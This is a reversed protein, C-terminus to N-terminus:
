DWWWQGPALHKLDVKKHLGQLKGAEDSLLNQSDLAQEAHITVGGGIPTMLTNGKWVSTVATEVQIPTRYTEVAFRAEEGLTAMPWNAKEIFIRAPPHLRGRHGPRDPKALQAYVPASPLWSKTSRAHLESTFQKSAKSGNGGSTRRAGDSSVVEDEGVLKVGQGVLEMALKDESVRM